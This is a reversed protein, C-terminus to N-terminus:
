RSDPEGASPVPILRDETKVVSAAPCGRGLVPGQSMPANPSDPASMPGVRHASRDGLCRLPRAIGVNVRRSDNPTWAGFPGGPVHGSSTPSRHSESAKVTSPTLWRSAAGGCRAANESQRWLGLGLGKGARRSVSGRIAIPAFASSSSFMQGRRAVNRVTAVVRFRLGTPGVHCFCCGCRPLLLSHRALRGPAGSGGRSQPGGSKPSRVESKRCGVGAHCVEGYRIDATGRM